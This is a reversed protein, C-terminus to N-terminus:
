FTEFADQVDSSLLITRRLCYGTDYLFFFIKFPMCIEIYLTYAPSNMISHFRLSSNRSIRWFLEWITIYYTGHRNSYYRFLIMIM